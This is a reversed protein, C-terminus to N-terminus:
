QEGGGGEVTALPVATLREIDARAQHYASLVELYQVHLDFLTRQAVLVDLYRFLGKKYADRSGDFAAKAGPLTSSRLIEAQEFAAALEEYRQALLSRTSTVAAAKEAQAKAIDRRAALVRGQNRDFVPLPMSLEVVLALSGNDSFHRGGLSVTPDPIRRARELSLAGRRRELETTWRAIDPNAEIRGELQSLPPPPAVDSLDGRVESFDATESGWMAALATRRAALQREALAREVQSRSLVVQARTREVAPIAGARVQAGARRSAEGALRELERVLEVRRQAALTTVFAKTTETLVSLRTDEYDWEALDRDLEAVRRRKARKGSLLILQSLWVTSEAQEFGPRTGSGAINELEVGVRPNPRLGAQVARAERARIEWSFAALAPNRLLAAAVADGLTLVGTPEATGPSFAADPAPETPATYTDFEAGLPAQQSGQAVAGPSGLFFLVVAGSLWLRQHRFM